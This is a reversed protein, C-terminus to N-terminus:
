KGESLLNLSAGHEVLLKVVNIHNYKYALKISENDHATCDVDLLLLMKVITLHGSMSALRIASNAYKHVDADYTAFLPLLRADGIECAITTASYMIENTYKSEDSPYIAHNCDAGNELLLICMAINGTRSAIRLCTHIEDGFDIGTKIIISVSYIDEKRICEKLYLIINEKLHTDYILESDSISKKNSKNKMKLGLDIQHKIIEVDKTSITDNISM